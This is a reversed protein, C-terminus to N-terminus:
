GIIDAYLAVVRVDQNLRITLSNVGRRRDTTGEYSVPKEADGYWVLWGRFSRGYAGGEIRLPAQLTVQSGMTRQVTFPTTRPREEGVILIPVKLEEPRQGTPARTMTAPPQYTYKWAHVELNVKMIEVLVPGQVTPCASLTPRTEMTVTHGQADRVQARVILQGGEPYNVSITGQNGTFYQNIVVVQGDPYTVQFPGVQYPSTGGSISWQLFLSHSVNDECQPTARWYTFQASLAEPQPQPQEGAAYLNVTLVIVSCDRSDFFNFVAQWSGGQPPVVGQLMLRRQELSIDLHLGESLNDVVRELRVPALSDVLGSLEYPFPQIGLVRKGPTLGRLNWTFEEPEPCRTTPAAGSRIYVTLTIVPCEREDYLQYVVQWNGGQRPVQGQLIGVRQGLNLDFTLSGPLNDQVREAYVAGTNAVAQAIESPFYKVSHVQMGPTVEAFEWPLSVPTPCAEECVEYQRCTPQLCDPNVFAQTSTEIDPIVDM